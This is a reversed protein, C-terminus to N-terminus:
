LCMSECPIGDGDNDRKVCGCDNLQFYAEDCDTMQSCNKSCDCVYKNTDEKVQTSLPYSTPSNPMNYKIIKHNDGMIGDLYISLEHFGSHNKIYEGVFHSFYFDEDVKKLSEDRLEAAKADTYILIVVNRDSKTDEKLKNGLKIMDHENFLDPSIIILKGKGGNPISWRKYIQYTISKEIPTPTSEPTPQIEKGKEQEVKQTSEQIIEDIKLTDSKGGVISGIVIFAVIGILVWKIIKKM